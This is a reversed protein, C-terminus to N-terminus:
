DHAQKNLHEKLKGKAKDFEADADPNNGNMKKFGNAIDFLSSIIVEREKNSEEIKKDHNQVQLVLNNISNALNQVMDTLDQQKEKQKGPIALM